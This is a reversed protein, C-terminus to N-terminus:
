ILRASERLLGADQKNTEIIIGELVTGLPCGNLKASLRFIHVLEKCLCSCLCPRHKFYIRM